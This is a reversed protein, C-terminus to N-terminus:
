GDHVPPHHNSEDTVEKVPGVLEAATLPRTEVTIPSLAEIDKDASVTRLDRFRRASPLVRRELTGVSSNYADVAQNLRNGVKSWHEALTAIREYLEKGLAAVEVANQAMAEQRWGYAVAKLLAILTTPSAPIVRNEAGYEILTHDQTLAASFFAEGPVFLVVFEPTPDFQDFYAKKSLQTIHERVQRAHHVLAHNRAVEDQAEVAELYAEVPAKADVVVQRGGPPHVIMDPRQRNGTDDTHSVQQDFDCHELMGAMEVVRKLQVEGWRGRAQPQRLAKVLDATERHLQPLHTEVLAKLQTDLAQYAGLRSKELQDLKGDFKELRERIPQTLQEIAQQRKELDTQAGQQFRQLNERALKLFSENNSRLAESSLVKFADALKSRADELLTLKEKSAKQEQILREQLEANTSRSTSHENRLKELQQQTQLLNQRLETLRSELNHHSTDLEAERRRLPGIETAQSVLKDRVESVQQEAQSLRQVLNLSHVRLWLWALLFGLVLALVLGLLAFPTVPM